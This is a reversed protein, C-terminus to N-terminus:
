IETRVLPPWQHQLTGDELQRILDNLAAVRVMDNIYSKVYRKRMEKDLFLLLDFTQLVTFYMRVTSRKPERRMRDFDREYYRFLFAAEYLVTDRKWPPNNLYALTQEMLPLDEQITRNSCNGGPVHYRHLACRVCLCPGSFLASEDSSALAKWDIVAVQETHEGPHPYGKSRFWNPIVPELGFWTGMRWEAASMLTTPGQPLVAMAQDMLSANSELIFHQSEIRAEDLQEAEQGDGGGGDIDQLM